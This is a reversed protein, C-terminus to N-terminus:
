AASLPRPTNGNRNSPRKPPSLAVAILCPHWIHRQTRARVTSASACCRPLATWTPTARQGSSGAAASQDLQVISGHVFEKPRANGRESRDRTPKGDAVWKRYADLLSNALIRERLRKEEESMDDPLFHLEVTKIRTTRIRKDKAM